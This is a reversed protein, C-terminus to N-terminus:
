GLKIALAITAWFLFGAVAGLGAGAIRRKRWTLAGIAAGVFLGPWGFIILLDLWGINFSIDSM